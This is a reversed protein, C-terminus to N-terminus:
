DLKYKGLCLLGTDIRNTTVFHRALLFDAKTQLALIFYVIELAVKSNTWSGVM